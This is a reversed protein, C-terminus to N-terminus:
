STSANERRTSGSRTAPASSKPLTKRGDRPSRSEPSSPARYWSPNTKGFVIAKPALAAPGSEFNSRAGLVSNAYIVTGTDGWAVHEGLHPQYVAQYNICTDTIMVGIRRLCSILDRERAVNAPDQGLRGAYAFDFCRANTTTNVACRAGSTATRRLFELGGEGMVEIDGMM